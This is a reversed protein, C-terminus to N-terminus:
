RTTPIGAQEMAAEVADDSGPRSRSLVEELKTALASLSYNIIIFLAAVVILAPVINAYASGVREGQRLLEAYTIQYGLASDKLIIVLQSVLAPLALRLAQPLQVIFMNQTETLGIARGAEAQGKPLNNVSARLLEALVCSNYTVLGTVTGALAIHRAPFLGQTAFLWFAFIMMILVPVSRFFEVFTGALVSVPRIPSMRGLGLLLGFVLSLGISIGAATFTAILGPLVYNRWVAGSVFPTWKDAALNGREGLRILVFALAALTLLAILVTAVRQIMRARPGPADFLPTAASM